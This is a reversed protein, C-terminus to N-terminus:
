GTAANYIDRQQEETVVYTNANQTMAESIRKVEATIRGLQASWAEACASMAAQTEFGGLGPHDACTNVAGSTPALGDAVSRASGSLARLEDISVRFRPGVPAAPDFGPDKYTPRSPGPTVAEKVEDYPDRAKDWVQAAKEEVWAKAQEGQEAAWDKADGAKDVVADKADGAQEAAWDKADGAKEAVEDKIAGGAKEALDKAQEAKDVIDDIPNPLDIDFAGM